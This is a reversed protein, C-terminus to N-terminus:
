QVSSYWPAFMSEVTIKVSMANATLCRLVPLSQCCIRCIEEILVSSRLRRLLSWMPYIGRETDVIVISM